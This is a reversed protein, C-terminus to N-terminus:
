SKHDGIRVCQAVIETENDLVQDAAAMLAGQPVGTSSSLEYLFRLLLYTVLVGPDKATRIVYKSEDGMRKTSVFITKEDLLLIVEPAYQMPFNRSYKRLNNIITEVRSSGFAFITGMILRRLQKAASINEIAGALQDGDLRTKVEIVM